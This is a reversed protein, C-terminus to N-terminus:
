PLGLLSRMVLASMDSRLVPNSPCYQTTSCGLWFGMDRMKQIYPFFADTAPVDTFYPTTSYTFTTLNNKVMWGIIMFKAMEDQTISLTPCYLPPSAQCGSTLGLYALTQVFPFFADTAPEDQFYPTTPYGTPLVGAAHNINELASIVFTAMEDRTVPSTPCYQLPTAACGATVGQFYMLNMYDFYQTGLPVDSFIQVPGSELVKFSQSGVTVTGMRSDGTNAAVTFGFSGNGSGTSANLTIWTPSDTTATWNCGFGDALEVTTSGGSTTFSRTQPVLAVVCSSPPLIEVVSLNYRDSAPATDNISVTTGTVPTTNIQRQVWYTNLNPTQYQNVISQSPGAVAITATSTDNGVGMVWSGDRTSVLSGTPAGVGAAASASATAGIAGSGNTGSPDVGTFSMVTISSYVGGSLTATVSVSSLKAPAFTRWVESTGGQANTRDALAWTLGGGSVGTVTVPITGGTSVFALLLENVSATTFTPSTVTTSASPANQSVTVDVALGNSPPPALLLLPFSASSSGLTATMQVTTNSTVATTTATFSSTSAGAAILLSAPEGANASNDGLTVTTGGTPAAGSMTVQCTSSAPPIVADPNCIIGTVTPIATFNVATQNASSVTVASNPPTFTFASKSPTM